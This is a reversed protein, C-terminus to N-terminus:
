IACVCRLAACSYYQHLLHITLSPSSLYILVTDRSCIGAHKIAEADLRMLRLILWKQEEKEKEPQEEEEEEEKLQAEQQELCLSM